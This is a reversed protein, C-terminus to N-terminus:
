NSHFRAMNVERDYKRASGEITATSPQKKSVGSCEHNIRSTM